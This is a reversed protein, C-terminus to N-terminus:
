QEETNPIYNINIVCRVRTNTQSVGTHKLNSDFSVFRNSKTEIKTGDEFLTYGDNDNIYFIATKCPLDIDTHYGGELNIPTPTGLNAKVRILVKPNIMDILPKIYQFFSSSVGQNDKFLLHIFQFKYVNSTNDLEAIGNNYFWPFNPNNIFMSQIEVFDFDNLFNDQIKYNISM